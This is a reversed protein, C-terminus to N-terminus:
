LFLEGFEIAFVLCDRSGISYRLASDACGKPKELVNRLFLRSRTRGNPLQTGVAVQCFRKREAPQKAKCCVMSV